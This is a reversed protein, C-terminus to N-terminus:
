HSERKSTEMIIDKLIEPVIACMFKLVKLDIGFHNFISISVIFNDRDISLRFYFM